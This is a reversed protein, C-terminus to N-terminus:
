QVTCDFLLYDKASFFLPARSRRIADDRHGVPPATAAPWLDGVESLRGNDRTGFKCNVAAVSNATLQLVRLIATSQL